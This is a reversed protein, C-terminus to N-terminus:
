PTPTTLKLSETCSYHTSDTTACSLTGTATTGKLLGQAGTYKV